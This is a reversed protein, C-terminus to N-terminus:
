GGKPFTLRIKRRDGELIEFHVEIAESPVIARVKEGWEIVVIGPRRFYEEIGVEILEGPNQIRYADIHYLPIKGDYERILVFTPSIVERPNIQLGEAIGQVLTTKGAGLQGILLLCDGPQLRGALKRGWARTEEASETTLEESL